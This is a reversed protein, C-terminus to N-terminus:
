LNNFDHAVGGALRGLAEMKQAHRLQAETRALNAESRKRETVELSLVCVGEPVPVFRLEFWGTSGDPYIFENDMHLHVRETMCKELQSFMPTQDIGPYCDTMRRGLLQELPQHAHEVAVRNLYLYEYDFGIVQCGELLSELVHFALQDPHFGPESM